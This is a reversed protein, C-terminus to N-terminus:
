VLEHDELKRLPYYFSKGDPMKVSKFPSRIMERFQLYNAPSNQADGKIWVVEGNADVWVERKNSKKYWNM